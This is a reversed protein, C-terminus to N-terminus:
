EINQVQERIKEVHNKMDVVYKSITLDNAKSGITNMERHMEQVIFELKRGIPEQDMLTEHFQELHSKLRVLEEHIDCRDAYLVIETLLRQEDLDHNYVEKLKAELRERYKQVVTPAHPIIANVCGEIDSLRQQVDNHLREGETDRMRGLMTVAAEVAEQLSEEFEDNLSETEEISAVEPMMFLQQVTIAEPMQFRHKTEEMAKKYQELLDWDVHLRRASLEEGEFTVSVELRGRRIREGIKKRIMDEFRMMGKPLRISMELFRHNVSKMEVTVHTAHGAKARGFGTMSSVM